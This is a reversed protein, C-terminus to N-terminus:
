WEAFSGDRHRAVATAGGEGEVQASASTESDFKLLLM